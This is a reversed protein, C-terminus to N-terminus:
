FLHHFVYEKARRIKPLNVLVSIQALGKGALVHSKPPNSEEQITGLAAISATLLHRLIHNAYDIM